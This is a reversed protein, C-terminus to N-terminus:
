QVPGRPKWNQLFELAADVKEENLLKAITDRAEQYDALFAPSPKKRSQELFQDFEQSVGATKLLLHAVQYAVLESRADYILDILWLLYERLHDKDIEM